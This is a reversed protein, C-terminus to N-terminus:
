RSFTGSVRMFPWAAAAIEEDTVVIDTQRLQKISRCM